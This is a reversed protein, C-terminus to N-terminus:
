PQLNKVLFAESAEEVGYIVGGYPIENLYMSLIEDKTAVQELKVALVWEKIKRSILKESTLLSNKVVQQTITSGGQSFDLSLINVLTARIFATPKVGKHSYFEKDEIAITANKIHRSIEEIPVISRRINGGTDYLLVKGTRDYIKTSEIIRRERISESTPVRFSSVWFLTIAGLILTASVLLM